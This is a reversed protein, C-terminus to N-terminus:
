YWPGKKLVVPYFGLTRIEPCLEHLRETVAEGGRKVM